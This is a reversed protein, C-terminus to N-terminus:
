RRVIAIGAAILLGGVVQVASLSEGLVVVAVVAAAFPLLNAYITARSPGVRGVATYWLINTLVLPGVVAYLLLLWSEWGVAAYDVESTQPAGILLLLVWMSSLVVASIRFPSYERMLPAISVSYAAWTAAMGLALLNGGLDSTLEGGSGLAVLAVGAFSVGAAAWFRVTLREVGTLHAILAAFIPTTGLILATTTASALDLAYVFCVQNLWLTVVALGVNRWARRGRLALSRELLLTLAVFILAAAAYRITAYALPEFAHTLLYKTVTFNFAWLVVVGLLLVDTGMARQRM